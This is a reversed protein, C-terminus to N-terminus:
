PMLLITQNHILSFLLQKSYFFIKPITKIPVKKTLDSYYYTKDLLNYDIVKEHVKSLISKERALIRVEIGKDILATIHDLIFTESLLPFRTTIILVRMTKAM